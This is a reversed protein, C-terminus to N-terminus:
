TLLMLSLAPVYSVVLVMLFIYATLWLMPKMVRGVTVKSVSCAAFLAVGVPPTAMAMSCNFSILVGFHVPDIGMSKAVPFLLPVLIIMAPLTDMLMGIIFLVIQTCLLFAARGLGLGLMAGVLMQPVKLLVMLYSFLGATSVMLLPGAAISATQRFSRCLGKATFSRRVVGVVIAYTAAIAASETPTFKGSYIGGLIIAPMALPVIAEWCVRAAQPRRIPESVPYGSRVAHFYSIVMLGIGTVVGPVISGIFLKWVSVGALYGVVVLNISPPIVAGLCGAVAILATSFERSYGERLMAPMLITAVAAADATASGTIAGFMMATAVAALLLGGRIRGLLLKSFNVLKDTMGSEGMLMGGLVFLPIAVLPFSDVGTSMVQAYTSIPVPSCLMLGLAGTMGLVFAIPMNLLFMLTFAALILIAGGPTV